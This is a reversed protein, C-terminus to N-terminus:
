IQVQKYRCFRASPLASTNHHLYDVCNPPIRKFNSWDPKSTFVFNRVILTTTRSLPHFKFVQKCSSVEGIHIHIFIAQERIFIFYIALLVVAALGVRKNILRFCLENLWKYRNSILCNRLIKLRFTIKNFRKVRYMTIVDGSIEWNLLLSFTNGLLNLWKCRAIEPVIHVPNTALYLIIDCIFM